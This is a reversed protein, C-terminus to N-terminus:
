DRFENRGLASRRPLDTQQLAQLPAHDEFAVKVGRPSSFNGVHRHQEQSPGRPCCTCLRGSLRWLASVEVLYSPIVGGEYPSSEEIRLAEPCQHALALALSRTEVTSGASGKPSSPVM